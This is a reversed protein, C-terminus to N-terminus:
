GPYQIQVALGGTQTTCVGHAKLLLVHHVVIKVLQDVINQQALEAIHVEQSDGLAGNLLFNIVVAVTQTHHNLRIQGQKTTDATMLETLNDALSLLHLAMDTGMSATHQDAIDILREGVCAVQGAHIQLAGFQLLEEISRVDHNTQIIGITDDLVYITVVIRGRRRQRIVVAIGHPVITVANVDAHKM